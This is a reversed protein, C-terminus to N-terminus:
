CIYVTYISAQGPQLTGSQVLVSSSHGNGKDLWSDVVSGEVTGTHRAQLELLETQLTIAEVLEELGERKM